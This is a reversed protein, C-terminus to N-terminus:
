GGYVGTIKNVGLNLNTESNVYSFNGLVEHTLSLIDEKSTLTLTTTKVTM